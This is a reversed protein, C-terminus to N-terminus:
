VPASTTFYFVLGAIGAVIALLIILNGLISTQGKETEDNEPPQLEENERDNIADIIFQEMDGEFTNKRMNKM